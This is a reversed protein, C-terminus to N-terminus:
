GHSLAVGIPRVTFHSFTTKPDEEHCVVYPPWAQADVM